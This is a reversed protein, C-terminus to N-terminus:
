KSSPNCRESRPGYLRQLLLKMRQQLQEKERREQHLTVMVEILMRKLTELDNPLQEPTPLPVNDYRSPWSYVQHLYADQQAPTSGPACGPAHADADGVNDIHPAHPAVQMFWPQGPHDKVHSALFEDVAKTDLGEARYIRIQNKDPPLTATITEFDFVSKPRVDAKDAIVVRVM